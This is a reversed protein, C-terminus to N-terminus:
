KGRRQNQQTSKKDSPKHKLSGFYTALAAIEADSFRGAITQMIANDRKKQRYEDMIAIFSENPWGIIPPIGQYQGSLQHCPVCESSLYEGLARDGAAVAMGGCLWAALVLGGLSGGALLMGRRNM